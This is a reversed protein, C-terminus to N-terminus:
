TVAAAVVTACAHCVYYLLLVAEFLDGCIVVFLDGPVTYSCCCCCFSRCVFAM